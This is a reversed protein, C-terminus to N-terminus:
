SLPGHPTMFDSSDKACGIRTDIPQDTLAVSLKESLPFDRQYIPFRYPDDSRLGYSGRLM